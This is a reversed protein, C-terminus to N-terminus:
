RSPSRRRRRGSSSARPSAFLRGRGDADDTVVWIDDDGVAIGSVQGPPATYSRWDGPLGVLLASGDKAPVAVAFRGDSLAVPSPPVANEALELDPVELTTVADDTGLAWAALRGDVRGVVLCDGGTCAAGTAESVTGDAPLTTRTWPSRGDPSHWLAPRLAVTDGRFDSVAGEILAGGERATAGRVSVQEQRTGALATGRSDERAWTRGGLRWLAIDLGPGTESGWSGVLLPDGAVSVLAVLGGAGWGGFTEFTQVDEVVHDPSWGSWVTWRKNGHAGGRAGGFGFLRDSSFGVGSWLTSRGYYSRPVVLFPQPGDRTLRVLAPRGGDVNGAVVLDGDVVTLADARALSTPVQRWRLVSVGTEDDPPADATCASALILTVVLACCRGLRAGGIRTM